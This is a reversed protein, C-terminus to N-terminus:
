LPPEITIAPDNLQSAEFEIVLLVQVDAPIGFDAAERVLGTGLFRMEIAVVASTEPDVWVSIALEDIGSPDFGRLLDPSLM